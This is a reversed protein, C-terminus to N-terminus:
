IHKGRNKEFEFCIENYSKASQKVVLYPVKNGAMADCLTYADDYTAEALYSTGNGAVTNYWTYINEDTLEMNHAFDIWERQRDM